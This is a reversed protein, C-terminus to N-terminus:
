HLQDFTVIFAPSFGSKVNKLLAGKKFSSILRENSIRSGADQIPLVAVRCRSRLSGVDLMLSRLSSMPLAAVRM